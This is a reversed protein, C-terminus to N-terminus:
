RGGGGADRNTVKHLPQVIIAIPMPREQFPNLKQILDWLEETRMMAEKRSDFLRKYRFCGVSCPCSHDTMVKVYCAVARPAGMGGRKCGESGRKSSVGRGL